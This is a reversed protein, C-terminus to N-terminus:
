YCAVLCVMGSFLGLYNLMSYRYLVVEDGSDLLFIPSGKSIMSWTMGSRSPSIPSSDVVGYPMGASESKEDYRVTFLQSHLYRSLDFGDLYNVNRITQTFLAFSFILFTLRTVVEAFGDQAVIRSSMSHGNSKYDVYDDLMSAISFSKKNSALM